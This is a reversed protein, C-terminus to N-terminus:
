DKGEMEKKKAQKMAFQKQHTMSGRQARAELKQAYTLEAKKTEVQKKEAMIEGELGKSYVLRWTCTSSMLHLKKLNVSKGYVVLYKKELLKLPFLDAAAASVFRDM